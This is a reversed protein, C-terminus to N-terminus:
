ISSISLEEEIPKIEILNNKNHNIHTRSKLCEECLHRNCDLCYCVYKKNKHEKCKDEINKQKYKEMKLLYEKIPIIKKEHNNEKNLCKFEIINRDENISLIEVLSQCETCNYYINSIEIEPEPTAPPAENSNDNIRNIESM